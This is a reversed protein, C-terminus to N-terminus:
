ADNEITPDFVVDCNRERCHRALSILQRSKPERVTVCYHYKHRGSRTNLSVLAVTGDTAITWPGIFQGQPDKVEIADTEAFRYGAEVSAPDLEFSLLTDAQKVRVKHPHAKCCIADIYVTKVQRTM